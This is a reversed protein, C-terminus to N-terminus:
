AGAAHIHIHSGEGDCSLTFMGCDAQGCSGYLLSHIQLVPRLHGEGHAVYGHHRSQSQSVKRPRASYWIPQRPSLPLLTQVGVLPPSTCQRALGIRGGMSHPVDYRSIGCSDQQVNEIMGSNQLQEINKTIVRTTTPARPSEQRQSSSQMDICTTIKHSQSYSNHIKYKYKYKYQAIGAKYGPVCPTLRM